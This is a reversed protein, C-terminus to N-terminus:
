IISKQYIVENRYELKVSLQRVGDKLSPKKSNLRLKLEIRSGFPIQIIEPKADGFYESIFIFKALSTDFKPDISLTNLVGTQYNYSSTVGFIALEFESTTLESFEAAIKMMGLVSAKDRDLQANARMSVSDSRYIGLAKNFLLFSNAENMSTLTLPFYNSSRLHKDSCRIMQTLLVLNNKSFWDSTDYTGTGSSDDGTAEWGSRQFFVDEDHAVISTKVQFDNPASNTPCKGQIIKFGSGKFVTFAAHSPVPNDNSGGLPLSDHIGNINNSYGEVYLRVLYDQTIKKLKPVTIARMRQLSNKFNSGLSIESKGSYTNNVYTTIQKKSLQNSQCGLLVSLLFIVLLNRM